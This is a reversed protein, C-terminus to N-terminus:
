TSTSPQSPLRVAKSTASASGSGDWSWSGTAAPYPATISTATTAGAPAAASYSFIAPPPTKVPKRAQGGAYLTSSLAFVQHPVAHDTRTVFLSPTVDWWMPTLNASSTIPALDTKSGGSFAFYSQGFLGMIDADVPRASRVPGILPADQSHFVALLRTLGGEVAEVYVIDAKDIGVQPRGPATDDIKVIVTPTKPVSGIGTFPNTPAPATTSSATTAPTSPVSSPPASSNPHGSGGGCAALATAAVVACALSTMRASIRM